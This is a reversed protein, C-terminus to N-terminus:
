LVEVNIYKTRLNVFFFIMKFVIIFSYGGSWKHLLIYSSKFYKHLKASPVGERSPDCSYATLKAILCIGERGLVPNVFLLSIFFASLTDACNKDVNTHIQSKYM